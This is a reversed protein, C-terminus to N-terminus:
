EGIGKLYNLIRSNMITSLAQIADTIAMPNESVTLQDDDYVLIYEYYKTGDQM